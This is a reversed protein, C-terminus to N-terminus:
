AVRIVKPRTFSFSSSCRNTSLVLSTVQSAPSTMRAPRKLTSNMWTFWEMASATQKAMWVGTPVMMWVPSKLISGVGMLPLIM